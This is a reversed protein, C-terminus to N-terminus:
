LFCEEYFKLGGTVRPEKVSDESSTENVDFSPNRAGAQPRAAARTRAEVAAAAVKRANPYSKFRRFRYDVTPEPDPNYFIVQDSPGVNFRAAKSAAEHARNMERKDWYKHLKVCLLILFILTPLIIIALIVFTKKFSSWCAEDAPSVPVIEFSPDTVKRTNRLSGEENVRIEYSIHMSDKPELGLPYQTPDESTYSHSRIKRMQRVFEKTKREVEAFHEQVLEPTLGGLLIDDEDDLFDNSEKPRPEFLRPNSYFKSNTRNTFTKDGFIKLFEENTINESQQGYPNSPGCRPPVPRCNNLKRVCFKVECNYKVKNTYPYKHARFSVFSFRLDESYTLPGIVFGDVTCGNDDYFMNKDGGMGSTMYCNMVRLSYMDYNEMGIVMTVNDGVSVEVAAQRKSLSGAYIQMFLRPGDALQFVNKSGSDNFKVEYSNTLLRTHSKYQCMFNFAKADETVLFAHPQFVLTNYFEIADDLLRFKTNCGKLPFRYIFANTGNTYRGMCNKVADKPYVIGSFKFQTSVNLVVFKMGCNVQVDFTDNRRTQPNFLTLPIDFKEDGDTNLTTKNVVRDGDMEMVASETVEADLPLNPIQEAGILVIARVMCLYVFWSFRAKDCM